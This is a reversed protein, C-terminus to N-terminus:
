RVFAAWYFGWGTVATGLLGLAAIKGWLRHSRSHSGPAPPSPFGGYARWLVVGWLIPTPIAFSLHIALLYDILDNWRGARWFPSPEARFEWGWVRMEIEFAVVAVLLIAAILFQLNRHLRYLRTVRVSRISIVLLPICILMGIVVIDLMLSGRTGLFGNM